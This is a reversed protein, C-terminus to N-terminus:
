SCLRIIFFSFFILVIRCLFAILVVIGECVIILLSTERGDIERLLVELVVLVVLQKLLLYIVNARRTLLRLYRRGLEVPEEHPDQCGDAEYDIMQPGIHRILDQLLEPDV